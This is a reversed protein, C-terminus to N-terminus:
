MQADLVTRNTRLRRPAPMEVWSSTFLQVSFLADHLPKVRGFPVPENLPLRAFVYKDVKRGNLRFAVFRQIFALQHFEFDLLARLTQLGLVYGRGLGKQEQRLRPPIRTSIERRTM